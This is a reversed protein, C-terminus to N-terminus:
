GPVECDGWTPGPVLSPDREPEATGASSFSSAIATGAVAAGVPGALKAATLKPVVSSFEDMGKM